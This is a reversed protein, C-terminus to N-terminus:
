IYMVQILDEDSLFYFRAFTRRKTELYASLNKQVMDLSKIHERLKELLEHDSLQITNPDRVVGRTIHKWGKNVGAFRRGESPLQRNIDASSFIPQLYM